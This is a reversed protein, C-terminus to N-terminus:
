DTLGFFGAFLAPVARKFMIQGDEVIRYTYAEVPPSDNVGTL